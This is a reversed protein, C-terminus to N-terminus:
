SLVGAAELRGIESEPMGTYERLVERTHAGIVPASATPLLPRGDLQWGHGYLDETGTLSHEVRGLIPRGFTREWNRHADVGDVRWASAGVARAAGVLETVTLDTAHRTSDILSSAALASWGSSTADVVVDGDSCRLSRATTAPVEDPRQAALYMEPLVSALTELQSLRVWGGTGSRRAQLLAGLLLMMGHWGAVPDSIGIAM